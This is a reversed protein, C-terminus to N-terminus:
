RTGLAKMAGAGPEEDPSGMLFIGPEIWRMRQIVPEGHKDEVSFEVWAGYQDWGWDAAWSPAQGSEWFRDRASADLVQVDARGARTLLDALPSSGAGDDSGPAVAVLQEGRPVLRWRAEARHAASVQGARIADSPASERDRLLENARTAMGCGVVPDDWLHSTSRVRIRELWARDNGALDAILEAEVEQCLAHFYARADLPDGSLDELGPVSPDTERAGPDLSLLEDFWIEPPLDHRWAKILRSLRRRVVLPERASFAQRL